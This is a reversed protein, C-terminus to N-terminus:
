STPLLENLKGLLMSSIKNGYSSANLRGVWRLGQMSNTLMVEDAQLLSNTDLPHEEVTLGWKRGYKILVRRMVGDICGESVPPTILKDKSWIFVNSYLADAIRGYQNTLLLDDLEMAAADISALVYAEANASKFFTGAHTFRTGGTWIGARVGETNLQFFHSDIPFAELLLDPYHSEPAYWGEGSRWCTMRIRANQWGHQQVLEEIKKQLFLMSWHEPIEMRLYTLAEIFRTYHQHFFLPKGYGVKVTEFLGDGYRFARNSSAVNWESVPQFQGNFWCTSM